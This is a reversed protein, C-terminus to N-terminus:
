VIPFQSSTLEGRHDAVGSGDGLNWLERQICTCMMGENILNAWHWDGSSPGRTGGRRDHSTYSRFTALIGDRETRSCPSSINHLSFAWRSHSNNTHSSRGVGGSRSWDLHRHLFFYKKNVVWGTLSFWKVLFFSTFSSRIILIGKGLLTNPLALM